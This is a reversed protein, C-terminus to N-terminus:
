KIATIGYYRRILLIGKDTKHSEIYKDLLTMNINIKSNKNEESFDVLIPTKLLLALLDEKTEYYERIHIPVLEVNRFGANLINEYDILSIPKIDNYAQGRKFISKLEWCDLKDVGRLILMGNEKLTKHIQKADICTHRAVVIDFYSNPTTINLNDMQKFKVNARNSKKLNENATKIMEPSFDTGIIEKATPFYELLKEGGGTGLDLIKSEDTSHMNLIEYMDWNTLSEESYKIQSFDWNKIKEYFELESTELFIEEM